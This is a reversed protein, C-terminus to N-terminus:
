PQRRDQYFADVEDLTPVVDRIYREINQTLLRFENEPLLQRIVVYGDRQFDDKERQFKM